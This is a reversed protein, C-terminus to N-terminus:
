GIGKKGVEVVAKGRPNASTRGARAPPGPLASVRASYVAEVGFADEAM